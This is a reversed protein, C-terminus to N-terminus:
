SSGCALFFDRASFNAKVSLIGTVILMDPNEDHAHYSPALVDSLFFNDHAHDMIYKAPGAYSVLVRDAKVNPILTFVQRDQM